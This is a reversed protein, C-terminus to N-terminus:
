VVEPVINQHFINKRAEKRPKIKLIGNLFSWYILQVSISSSANHSVIFSKIIQLAKNRELQILNTFQFEMQM